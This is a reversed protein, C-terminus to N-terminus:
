ILGNIPRRRHWATAPLSADDVSQKNLARLIHSRAMNYGSLGAGNFLRDIRMM